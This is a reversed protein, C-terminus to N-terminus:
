KFAATNKKHDSLNAKRKQTKSGETPSKAVYKPKLAETTNM